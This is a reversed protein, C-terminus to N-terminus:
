PAAPLELAFCDPHHFDPKEPNTHALAWYSRTGDVEDIIASLGLAIPESLHPLVNFEASLFYYSGTLGDATGPGHIEIEPDLRMPLSTMGERYGDFAYAAWAMSPSFNMEVYRSSGASRLFVEFCTTQWLGDARVSGAMAPLALGDAPMVGFEVFLSQVDFGLIQATVSKVSSPPWDPHPILEHLSWINRM